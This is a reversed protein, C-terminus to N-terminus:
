AKIGKLTFYFTAGQNVRGEGWIQGGHRFVIRQAIALGSGTGPFEDASHLRQFPSFLKGAYTMDFGAGNDRVFFAPKGEHEGSGFEIRARAKKGTFKWANGLLNELLVKFLEPDGEAILGSPVVCEAERQPQGDKLNELIRSALSSLDVTEHKMETLTVRSLRLLDDILEGMHQAASRVRRLYDRGEDSVKDRCDELVAQSFGDISRLPARLDHSISYAFAELEKNVARLEVTREQVLEELHEKHQRLEEEAQKRQKEQRDRQLRANLACVMQVGLNELLAIDKPQYDTKKNAVQILGIADGRYVLPMSIHRYIVIHGKPSFTSPENTYNIKKERIARPKSSKGWTDRPFRIDKQPVSCQEWWVGKTMSPVVLAGDQDIYGFVGHESETARLIIKLVEAYMDEDPITLFINAIENRIRLELESAAQAGTVNKEKM